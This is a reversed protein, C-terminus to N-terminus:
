MFTVEDLTDYRKTSCHAECAGTSLSGRQRHIIAMTKSIICGWLSKILSYCGTTNKTRLLKNIDKCTFTTNLGKRHTKKALYYEVKIRFLFSHTFVFTRFTMSSDLKQTQRAILGGVISIPAKVTASLYLM